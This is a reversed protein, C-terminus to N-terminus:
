HIIWSHWIIVDWASLRTLSIWPGHKVSISDVIFEISFILTGNLSKLLNLRLDFLIYRRIFLQVSEGEVHGKRRNLFYPVFDFLCSNMLDKLRVDFINKIDM